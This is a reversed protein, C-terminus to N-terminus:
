IFFFVSIWEMFKNVIQNRLSATQSISYYNWLLRMLMFIMKRLIICFGLNEEKGERWYKIKYQIECILISIVNFYCLSVLYEGDTTLALCLVQGIHCKRRSTDSKNKGSIKGLKEYTKVSGIFICFSCNWDSWDM